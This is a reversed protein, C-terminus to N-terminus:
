VTRKNGNIVGELKTMLLTHHAKELTASLKDLSEESEKGLGGERHETNRKINGIFSKAAQQSFGGFILLQEMDKISACAEVMTFDICKESWPATLDMKGYYQEIHNQVEARDDEPLDVGGRAGSVAAAAAFVGRPVAVLQGDIVDAFPLKYSTFEDRNAADYWFFARKYDASPSTESDTFARVRAIAAESDWERGRDALPLDGFSTASKVMTINANANMPESVLSVEWLEVEKIVRITRDGKKITEINNKRDPVSFGISMDTLVGQKALAYVEKGRQVELNIEGKMYLGKEDEYADAPPFGGILEASDHGYYMRVPRSNTKHRDLSKIFAGRKIEDNGRDIDWTSAYGEIIGIQVGNREEQKVDTALFQVSKYELNM